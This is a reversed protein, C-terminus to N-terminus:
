VDGTDGVPTRPGSPTGGLRLPSRGAPRSDARYGGGGCSAYVDKISETATSKIEIEYGGTDCSVAAATATRTFVVAGGPPGAAGEHIEGGGNGSWVEGRSHNWRRHARRSGTHVPGDGLDGCGRRRDGGVTGSGAAAVAAIATDGRGRGRGRSGKFAAAVAATASASVGGGRCRGRNGNSAAAATAAAVASASVEGGRCWGRSGNFAAAVAAAASASVGGGRCLGWSGNFAAVATATAASASAGGGWCQGPSGNFAAAVAAATSASVGGSIRGEVNADGRRFACPVLPYPRTPDIFVRQLPRGSRVKTQRPCTRRIAKAEGCGDGSTTVVRAHPQMPIPRRTTACFRRLHGYEGWAACNGEFRRPAGCISALHGYRGCRLCKHIAGMPVNAPVPSEEQYYAANQGCDWPGGPGSKPGGRHHPHQSPPHFRQPWHYPSRQQHRQLNQQNHQQQQQQGIGGRLFNSGDRRHDSNFSFHVCSGDSTPLSTRNSYGFRGNNFYLNGGHDVGAGQVNLREERGATGATTIGATEARRRVQKRQVEERERKLQKNVEEAIQKEEGAERINKKLEQVGQVNLREERGATGAATIGATEARRRLQKREVEESERKLQKTAEGAIQKDKEAERIKKKLEEVQKMLDEEGSM